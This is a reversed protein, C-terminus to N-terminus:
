KEPEYLNIQGSTETTEKEVKNEVIEFDDMWASSMEDSQLSIKKTEIPQDLKNIIAEISSEAVEKSKRKDRTKTKGKVVKYGDPDMSEQKPEKEIIEVILAPNSSTSLNRSSVNSLKDEMLVPEKSAVFAWSTSEDDDCINVEKVVEVGENFQIDEDDDCSFRKAEDIASLRGEKEKEDYDPISDRKVDKLPHGSPDGM